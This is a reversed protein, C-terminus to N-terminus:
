RPLQVKQGAEDQVELMELVLDSAFELGKHLEHVHDQLQILCRALKQKSEADLPM